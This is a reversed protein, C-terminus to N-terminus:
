VFWLRLHLIQRENGLSHFERRAFTYVDVLWRQRVPTDRRLHIILLHIHSSRNIITSQDLRLMNSLPWFKNLEFHVQVFHLIFGDLIFIDVWFLFYTRIQLHMGEWMWGLIFIYFIGNYHRFNYRCPQLSSSLLIHLRLLILRFVLELNIFISITSM